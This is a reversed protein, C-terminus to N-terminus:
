SQSVVENLNPLAAMLFALGPQRPGPLIKGNPRHRFPNLCPPAPHLTPVDWVSTKFGGPLFDFSPGSDCRAQTRTAKASHRIKKVGGASANTKSVKPSPNQLIM